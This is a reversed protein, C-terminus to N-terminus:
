ALNPFDTIIGDVKWNKSSTILSPENVTWTYVKYGERRALAIDEEKLSYIPPHVSFAEVTKAVNLISSIKKETLVGLKFASTTAKIQFLQSHDFSSLIFHNSEWKSGKIHKELLEVTPKATRIGKLEINLACRADILDLVQKLTPIKYGEITRYKSLEQWTLESVKGTGNTTRNLTEDHLVVLEGSKCLHIDIEIGDVGFELAKEISELTNEAVLGAAGRHGFIKM